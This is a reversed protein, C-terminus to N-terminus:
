CRVHQMTEWARVQCREEKKNEKRGERGVERRGEKWGEEGGGGAEKKNQCLTQEFRTLKRVIAPYVLPDLCQVLRTFKTRNRFIMYPPLLSGSGRVTRLREVWMDGNGRGM